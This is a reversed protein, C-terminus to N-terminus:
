IETFGRVVPQCSPHKNPDVGYALPMYLMATYAICASTIKFIACKDHGLTPYLLLNYHKSLGRVGYPTTYEMLNQMCVTFHYHHSSLQQADFKLQHTHCMNATKSIISVILGSGNVPMNESIIVIHSFVSPQASCYRQAVTSYKNHIKDCTYLMM